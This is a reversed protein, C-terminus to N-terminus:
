NSAQPTEGNEGAEKEASIKHLAHMLLQTKTVGRARALWCIKEHEEPTLRIELRRTRVAKAM